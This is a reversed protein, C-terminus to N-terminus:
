GCRERGRALPFLLCFMIIAMVEMMERFGFVGGGGRERERERKGKM